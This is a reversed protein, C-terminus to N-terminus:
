QPVGTKGKEAYVHQSFPAGSEFSGTFLYCLESKEGQVTGLPRQVLEVKTITVTQGRAEDPALPRQRLEDLAEEATKLEAPAEPLTAKMKYETKVPAADTVVVMMQNGELKEKTVTATITVMEGSAAAPSKVALNNALKDASGVKATDLAAQPPASSPAVPAASQSLSRGPLPLHSGVVVVAVVAAVMSLQLWPWRRATSRIQSPSSDQRVRERVRDKLRTDFHLGDFLVEDAEMKIQESLRSGETM